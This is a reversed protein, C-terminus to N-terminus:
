GIWTRWRSPLRHAAAIWRRQSFRMGLEREFLRALPLVTAPDAIVLECLAKLRKDVPLAVSIPLTTSRGVEDLILAAKLSHQILGAYRV